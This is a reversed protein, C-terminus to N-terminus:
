VQHSNVRVRTMRVFSARCLLERDRCLRVKKTREFASDQLERKLDRTRLAPVARVAQVLQKELYPASKDVTEVQNLGRRVQHGRPASSTLEAAHPM